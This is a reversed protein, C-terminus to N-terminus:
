QGNGKNDQTTKSNNHTSNDCDWCCAVGGRKKLGLRKEKRKKYDNSIKLEGALEKEIKEKKIAAMRSPIKIENYCSWSCAYLPNNGSMKKYAWGEFTLRVITKNCIACYRTDM